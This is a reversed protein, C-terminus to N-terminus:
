LLVYFAISIDWQVKSIYLIPNLLSNRTGPNELESFAFVAPFGSGVECDM